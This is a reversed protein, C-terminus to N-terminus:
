QGAKRPQSPQYDEPWDAPNDSIPRKPPDVLVAADPYYKKQVDYADEIVHDRSTSQQVLVEMEGDPKELSLMWFGYDDQTVHLKTM